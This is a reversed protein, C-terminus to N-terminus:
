GRDRAGGHGVRRASGRTGARPTPRISCVREVHLDPAMSAKGSSGSSRGRSAIRIGVSHAGSAIVDASASGGNRVSYDAGVRRRFAGVAGPSERLGVSSVGARPPLGRRRRSLGSPRTSSQLGSTVPEIGTREMRSSGAYPRNKTLGGSDDGGASAQDVGFRGSRAELRARISAESDRALHGYRRDIMAVSTGMLRALEFISVGAALAETAFTHRM